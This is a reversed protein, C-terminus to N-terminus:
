EKVGFLNYAVIDGSDPFVGVFYLILGNVGLDEAV